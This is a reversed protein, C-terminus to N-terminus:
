YIHKHLPFFTRAMPQVYMICLVYILTLIPEDRFWVIIICQDCLSQDFCPSWVVKSIESACHAMNECPRTIDNEIFNYYDHITHVGSRPSGLNQSVVWYSPNLKEPMTKTFNCIHNRLVKNGCHICYMPSYIHHNRSSVVRNM